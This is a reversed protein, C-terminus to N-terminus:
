RAVFESDSSSSSVLTTSETESALLVGNATNVNATVKVMRGPPASDVRALLNLTRAEGVPVIFKSSNASQGSGSITVGGEGSGSVFSLNAPLHFAVRMAMMSKTGGDHAVRLRYRVSEGVSFVGEESGSPKMDVLEVELSPLAKPAPKPAPVDAVVPPAAPPAAPTPAPVDAVEPQVIVPAPTPCPLPSPDYIPAVVPDVSLPMTVYSPTAQTVTAVIPECTHGAERCTGCLVRRVSKWYGPRLVVRKQITKYQAPVPIEQCTAPKVIYREQVERYQAPQYHVKTRSPSICVKECKSPM